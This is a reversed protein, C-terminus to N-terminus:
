PRRDSGADRAGGIQVLHHRPQRISAPTIEWGCARLAARHQVRMVALSRDPRGPRARGVYAREVLQPGTLGRPAGALARVMAAMLPSTMRAAAQDATM